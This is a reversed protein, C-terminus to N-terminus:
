ALTNVAAGALDDLIDGARGRAAGAATDDQTQAAADEAACRARYAEVEAARRAEDWGLEAAMLDAIEPVAALAHDRVEYTLRTRTTMIDELPLAGEYRVGYVIEARLRGALALAWSAFAALALLM